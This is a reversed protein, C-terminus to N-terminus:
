EYECGALAEKETDSLTEWMAAFAPDDESLWAAAVFEDWLGAQEIALKYAEWKDGLARIIKLKSYRKPPPTVPPPVYEQWGAAIFQEATPKWYRKGELVIGGDTYVVGDKIWM